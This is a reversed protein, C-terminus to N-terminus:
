NRQRFLYDEVIGTRENVLVWLRDARTNSVEYLVLLGFYATMTSLSSYYYYIRHFEGLGRSLFPEFFADAQTEYYLGVNLVKGSSWIVESPIAVMEGQVAIAMPAGFREFLERKTTKGREIRLVEEEEHIAKGTRVPLVPIICGYLLTFALIIASLGLGGRIVAM